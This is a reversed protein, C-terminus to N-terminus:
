NIKSATKRRISCKKKEAEKQTNLFTGGLFSASFDVGKVFASSLGCKRFKAL